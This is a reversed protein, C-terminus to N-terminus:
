TRLRLLEEYHHNVLGWIHDALAQRKKHRDTLESGPFHTLDLEEGFSFLAGDRKAIRVEGLEKQINQPPPLLAYTALALPYFHTSKAAERAMLRFMEISNPDFPAIEVTGTASPRDRGGSPAVYIIRGGEALLERMLKMTKQNHSLKEAKKEPPVDIHRKSYICLLNRGRSLPIALPDTVVRDGAVFIIESGISEYSNELALSFLQPDIESQHNALLIVNDGSALQKAMKAVQELHLVRSKEPDVLPRIFDLGFRYYDFPARNSKHFPPFPYREKQAECIKELYTLFIPEFNLPEFGAEELSAIYTEYLKLFNQASLSDM